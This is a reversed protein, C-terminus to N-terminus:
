HDAIGIVEVGAELAADLLQRNYEDETLHQQQGRHKLYDAPNVQLACKFFRAKTYAGEHSQSAETM